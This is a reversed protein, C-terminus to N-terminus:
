AAGVGAAGQQQAQEKRAPLAMAGAQAQLLLVLPSKNANSIQESWSQPLAIIPPSIV